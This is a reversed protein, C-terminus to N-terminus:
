NGTANWEWTGCEAKGDFFALHATGKATTPSKFQGSIEGINSSKFEFKGDVIPTHSSAM